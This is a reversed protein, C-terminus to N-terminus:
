ARASLVAEAAKRGSVLAGNISPDKLYDGCLFVGDHIPEQASSSAEPTLVPLAREIRYIRLLNWGAVSEGFWERLEQTVQRSLDHDDLEPVGIISVSILAAGAPAYRKSVDSPVCVHNVLGQGTGNLVLIGERIPSRRASYYSTTTSHWAVPPLGPLLQRASDADTAVVAARCDIREGSALQVCGPEVSRVPTNVRILGPPLGNALQQPIAQMGEAPLTASGRAFMAFVFRFFSSPTALARELFVGGFFPRFFREIVRESLRSHCLYDQTSTSAAASDPDGPRLAEARLRAIRVADSLSAVPALLGALSRLPRRWPDAFRYRRGGIQVLAGPYFTRLALAGYDLVRAAEPYATLFVQFGRDLLFGDVRDTRIRGGVQDQAELVLVPVNAEKLRRACALGALGAGVIVVPKGTAESTVWGPPTEM